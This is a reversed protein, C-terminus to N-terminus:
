ARRLWEALNPAHLSIARGFSAALLARRPEIEVLLHARGGVLLPGRLGITGTPRTTFFDGISIYPTCSM